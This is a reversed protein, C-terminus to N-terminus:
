IQTLEDATGRGPSSQSIVCLFHTQSIGFFVLCPFAEVFVRSASVALLEVDPSGCVYEKHGGCAIVM